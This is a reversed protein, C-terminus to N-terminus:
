PWLSGNNTRAETIEGRVGPAELEPVILVIIRIRKLMPPIAEM